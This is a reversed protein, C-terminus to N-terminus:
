QKTHRQSNLRLEDDFAYNFKLVLKKDNNKSLKTVLGEKEFQNTAHRLASKRPTFEPKKSRGDRKYECWESFEQYSVSRKIGTICTEFDMYRKIKLYLKSYWAPFKENFILLDQEQETLWLKPM